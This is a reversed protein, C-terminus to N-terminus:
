EIVIKRQIVQKGATLRLVYVGFALDSGDLHYEYTGEPKEGQEMTKVKRGQMNFLDLSFSTKASLTYSVDISRCTGANWNLGNNEVISKIGAPLSTGSLLVANVSIPTL